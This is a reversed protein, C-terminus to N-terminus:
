FLFELDGSSIKSQYFGEDEDFILEIKIGFICVNISLFVGVFIIL